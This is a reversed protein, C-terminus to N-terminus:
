QISELYNVFRRMNIERSGIRKKIYSQMRTVMTYDINKIRDVANEIDGAKYVISTDDFAYDYIMGNMPADSCVIVCGCLAAELPVNHLGELETPAFFIDCSNYLDVLQEHSPSCIFGCLFRESRVETGFGVYEYDEHGLMDSLTVFDKWRKTLKKQYLCGIRTKNSSRQKRDEWDEFDIGQHVVVSEAGFEKLKRQLGYSNTINFLGSNYGNSLFASDMVWNEYGRIYYAKKPVNAQLTSGVTTCATAIIVDLDNPLYNIVPKHKFWTFNDDTAIIDCRHGLDELVKSCMITTQSGGGNGLGSNLCNFAINM